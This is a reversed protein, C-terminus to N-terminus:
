KGANFMLFTDFFLLSIYQPNKILVHNLDDMLMLSFSLIM